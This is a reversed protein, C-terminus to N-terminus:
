EAERLREVVSQKNLQRHAVWPIIMGLLLLIPMMVLIPSLMFHYSTFWLVSSIPKVIFLSCGIGLVLSFLVTALVYYVGEYMLMNRLQKLSMGISQLMALEKKRSLISTVIANIYNLIGILGLVFSLAGGIMIVTNQLGTFSQKYTYVSDYNMLPENLNTYNSLFSEMDMEHEPSVNFVYSMVAPQEVMATYPKAPLYFTTRGWITRSTNTLTKIAVHGLVTFAQSKTKGEPYLQITEGLEFQISELIPKSNDDLQVGELIYKGTALKDFDLEGDILELNHLPVDELGYVQILFHGNELKYDTEQSKADEITFLGYGGYLRGGEEFGPREQVAQIFSESTENGLGTFQYQFYNAHAILFDTDNFKSIFKQQDFSNSLTMVTNLLVMSLSLSIVVIVTRMKNRGLNAWAMRYMKTAGTSKKSKSYSRYSPDSYNVAEIPSVAAAIRGPKLTSMFVTILAFLASGVFIWPSPSVHISTGAYLTNNVIFPVLAKGVFFGIM